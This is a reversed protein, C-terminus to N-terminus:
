KCNQLSLIGNRLYDLLLFIPFCKRKLTTLQNDHKLSFGMEIYHVEPVHCTNNSWKPLYISSAQLRPSAQDLSISKSEAPLLREARGSCGSVLLDWSKKNKQRKILFYPLIGPWECYCCRQSSSTTTAFSVLLLKPGKKLSSLPFPMKSVFGKKGWIIPSTKRWKLVNIEKRHSFINMLQCWNCWYKWKLM